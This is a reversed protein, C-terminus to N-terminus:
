RYRVHLVGKERKITLLIIPYFGIKKIVNLGKPTRTESADGLSYNNSIQYGKYKTELWVSKVSKRGISSLSLPVGISGLKFNFEEM